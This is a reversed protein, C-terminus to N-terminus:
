LEWTLTKRNIYIVDEKKIASISLVVTIQEPSIDVIDGLVTGKYTQLLKERIESILAMEKETINLFDDDKPTEMEAIM